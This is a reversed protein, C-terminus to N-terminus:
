DSEPKKFFLFFLEQVKWKMWFEIQSNTPEYKGSVDPITNGHNTSMTICCPFLRESQSWSLPTHSAPSASQDAKQRSVCHQLAAGDAPTALAALTDTHWHTHKHTHARQLLSGPRWWRVSKLSTEMAVMRLARGSFLSLTGWERGEEKPGAAHSEQPLTEGSAQTTLHPTSM